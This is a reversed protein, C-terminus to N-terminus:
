NLEGKKFIKKIKKSIRLMSIRSISPDVLFCIVNQGIKNARYKTYKKKTHKALITM